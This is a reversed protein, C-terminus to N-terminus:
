NQYVLYSPDLQTLPITICTIQKYIYYLSITLKAKTNGKHGFAWGGKNVFKPPWNHSRLNEVLM